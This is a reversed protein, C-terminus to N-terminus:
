APGPRREDPKGPHKPPASQMAGTARRRQRALHESLEARTRRVWGLQAELMSRREDEIMRALLEPMLELDAPAHRPQETEHQRQEEVCEAEYRALLEDLAPVGRLSISLLRLLLESRQDVERLRRALWARYARAGESTARYHLKQQRGSVTTAQAHTPEVLGTRVLRDLTTYINSLSAPVLEGFRASFRRGIEYGYSPKEIVLGLVAWNVTAQLMREPGWSRSAAGSVANGEAQM